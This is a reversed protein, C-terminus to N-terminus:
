ILIQQFDSILDNVQQMSTEDYENLGLDAPGDSDDAASQRKHKNQVATKMKVVILRALLWYEDAFRSFGVRKWMSTPTQVSAASLCLESTYLQWALLWNDLARDVTDLGAEVNFSQQTQFIM